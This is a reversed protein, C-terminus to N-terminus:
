ALKALFERIRKANAGADGSGLRSVSRVDVRSGAPEPRIRVVVDDKFGFWTTTATAELRGAAADSAAIEWGMSRAADIAKQMSEQPSSKLILSKIDPYAKQQEAAVKVGGYAAGNPAKAREPALAVFAPPDFPDTTIDHIDPYGVAQKYVVYPVAVAVLAIVLAAVPIGIGRRWRPVLALLVLVLAGCAAAAGTYFAWKVLSFGTQWPWVGLRSGPGSALLMALAAVAAAMALARAQRM